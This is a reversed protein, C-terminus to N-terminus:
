MQKITKITSYTIVGNQTKMQLEQYGGKLFIEQLRAAHDAKFEEVLEFTVTDKKNFRIKIEKYQGSRVHDLILMEQQDLLRYSVYFERYKEVSLFRYLYNYLPLVVHPQINSMNREVQGVTNAMEFSIDGNVSVILRLDIKQHLVALIIYSIPPAFRFKSPIIDSNDIIEQKHELLKELMEPNLGEKQMMAPHEEKIDNISKIFDHHSFLTEKVKILKKISYGIERLDQIIYLYILEFFNFKNLRGKQGKGYETGENDLKIPILGKEKWHKLVRASVSLDSLKFRDGYLAFFNEPENFVDSNSSVGVFADLITNYEKM